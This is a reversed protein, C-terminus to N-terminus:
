LNLKGPNMINDPDIVKKIEKIMSKYGGAKAYVQEAWNGYPRSFFAGIKILTSSLTEFLKQTIMKEQPNAPSYYFSYQFHVRTPEVPILLSGINKRDYSFAQTMQGLIREFMPIQMAMTIFPIVSYGGRLKSFREYGKPLEVEELIKAAAQSDAPLSDLVSFNLKGSLELIDERQYAVEEKEGRLVIVATLPPLDNKLQSFQENEESLLGSLYAADAVFFEVPYGFRKIEKIAPFSEMFSNFPIFLVEKTEHLTKLKVVAKTVIGLTGQAGFWVKNLYAPNTGFPFYPKDALPIAAFGTKLIESNPLLVEMTLISEVGYRPWSYLPEMDVYSSIVSSSSPLEIPTLVRLKKEKAKEQLQAFTVGAEIIANRSVDDILHIRNLRRLDITIGPVAPIAGGHGNKGSSFPTVPIKNMTAVKLIAQIEEVTGPKVAMLPAREPIFSINGRYYPELEGLNESALILNNKGVIGALQEKIIDM